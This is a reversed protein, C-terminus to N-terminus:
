LPRPITANTEDYNRNVFLRLNERPTRTRKEIALSRRSAVLQVIMTKIKGLKDATVTLSPEPGLKLCTKFDAFASVNERGQREFMLPMNTREPQEGDPLGIASSSPVGPKM